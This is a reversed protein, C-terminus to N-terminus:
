LKVNRLHMYPHNEDYSFIIKLHAFQISPDTQLKYFFCGRSFNIIMRSYGTKKSGGTILHLLTLIKAKIFLLIKM